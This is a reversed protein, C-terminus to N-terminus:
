ALIDEIHSEDLLEALSWGFWYVGLLFLFIGGEKWHKVLSGFMFRILLINFILIGALAFAIWIGPNKIAAYLSLGTVVFMAIGFLNRFTYSHSM